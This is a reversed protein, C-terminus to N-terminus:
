LSSKIIGRYITKSQKKDRIKLFYMGPPLKETPIALESNLRYETHDTKIGLSNFLEVDLNQGSSSNHIYIAGAFPNPFINIESTLDKATINSPELYECDKGTFNTDILGDKYCRLRNSYGTTITYRHGILDDNGIRETYTDLAFHDLHRTKVRKM